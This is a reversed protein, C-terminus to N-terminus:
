LQGVRSEQNSASDRGLSGIGGDEWNPV